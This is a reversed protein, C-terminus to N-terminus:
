AVEDPEHGFPLLQGRSANVIQRLEEAALREESTVDRVLVILSKDLSNQCLGDALSGFIVRYVREALVV